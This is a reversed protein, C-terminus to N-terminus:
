MQDEHHNHCHHSTFCGKLLTMEQVSFIGFYCLSYIMNHLLRPHLIQEMIEILLLHSIDPQLKALGEKVLALIFKIISVGFMALYKCLKIDILKKRKCM